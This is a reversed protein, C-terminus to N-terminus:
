HLGMMMRGLSSWEALVCALTVVIMQGSSMM